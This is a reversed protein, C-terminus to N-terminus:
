NLHVYGSAIILDPGAQRPLHTSKKTQCNIGNLADRQHKRHEEYDMNGGTISPYVALFYRCSIWHWLQTPQM